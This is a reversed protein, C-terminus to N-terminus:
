IPQLSWTQLHFVQTHSQLFGVEFGQDATSNQGIKSQVKCQVKMTKM